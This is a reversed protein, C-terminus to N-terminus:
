VNLQYTDSIREWVCMNKEISKEKNIQFVGVFTYTPLVGYSLHKMFTIRKQKSNLWQEIHKRREEESKKNYEYLIEM